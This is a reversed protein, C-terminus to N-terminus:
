KPVQAIEIVEGPRPRFALEDQTLDHVTAADTSVAAQLRPLEALTAARGHAGAAVERLRGDLDAAIRELDARRAGAPDPEARSGVLLLAAAAALGGVGVVLSRGNAVLCGSNTRRRDPRRM